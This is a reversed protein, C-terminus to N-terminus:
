GIEISSDEYIKLVIVGDSRTTMCSREKGRVPVGKTMNHYDKIASTEVCAGDSIITLKPRFYNFWGHYFGSERGHHPALLIDADQISDKFSNNELLKKISTEGNDGPLIIKRGAYSIITVLSDENINAHSLKPEFLQIKVGGNEESSLPDSHIFDKLFCEIPYLFDDTIDLYKKYIEENIPCTENKKMINEINVKSPYLVKHINFQDLNLIDDIHDKHPHTIIVCDLNRIGYKDKMWLLPSFTMDDDKYSGTGLDQIITKRKPTEIYTSSGHQVDWFVLKLYKM